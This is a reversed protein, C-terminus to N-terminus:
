QKTANAKLLAVFEENNIDAGGTIKFTRLVPGNDSTKSVLTFDDLWQTYIYNAPETDGGAQFRPYYKNHLKADINTMSVDSNLQLITNDYQWVEVLQLEAFQWADRDIVYFSGNIAFTKKEDFVQTIENNILWTGIWESDAWYYTAGDIIAETSKVTSGNRAVFYYMGGSSIRIHGDNTIELDTNNTWDGWTTGEDVTYQTTGITFSITPSTDGQKVANAILLKYFEVTIDNGNEDTVITGKPFTITKATEYGWTKDGYANYVSYYLIISAEGPNEIYPRYRLRGSSIQIRDFETVVSNSSNVESTFRLCFETQTTVTASLDPINKWVWTEMEQETTLKRLQRTTGKAVVDGLFLKKLVRTITPTDEIKTANAQLWTLFSEATISGSIVDFTDTNFTVTTLLAPAESYSYSKEWSLDMDYSYISSYDFEVGQRNSGNRFTIIGLSGSSMYTGAWSSLTGNAYTHFTVDVNVNFSSGYEAMKSRFVWTGKISM